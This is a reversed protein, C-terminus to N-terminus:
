IYQRKASYKQMINALNMEILTKMGFSFFKPYPRLHGSTQANVYPPRLPATPMAKVSMKADKGKKGNFNLDMLIKLMAPHAKKVRM